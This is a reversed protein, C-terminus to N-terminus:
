IKFDENETLEEKYKGGTDVLLAVKSFNSFSLPQRVKTTEKIKTKEKIDKEVVQIVERRWIRLNPKRAVNIINLLFYYIPQNNIKAFALAVGLGLIIIAEIIFLAFDALKYCLIIAGATIFLIIFQRPTIPGIIKSEIDIFQPVVFQM